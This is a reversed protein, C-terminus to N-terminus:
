RERTFGISLGAYLSRVAAQAGTDDVVADMRAGRADACIAIPAAVGCLTAELVGVESRLRDHTPLRMARAGLRLWRMQLAAHAGLEFGSGVLRSASAGAQERGTLVVGSTAAAEFVTTGRM